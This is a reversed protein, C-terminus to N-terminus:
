YESTSNSASSLAACRDHRVRYGSAKSLRRARRRRHWRHCDRGRWALIFSKMTRGARLAHDRFTPVPNRFLDHEFILQVAYAHIISRLDVLDLFTAHSTIAPAQRDQTHQATRRQRGRGLQAAMAPRHPRQRNRGVALRAIEPLKSVDAMRQDSSFFARRAPAATGRRRPSRPRAAAAVAAGGGAALIGADRDPLAPSAFGAVRARLGCPAPRRARPKAPRRSARSRM